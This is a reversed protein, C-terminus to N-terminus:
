LDTGQEDKAGLSKIYTLDDEDLRFWEGRLRKDKFRVHLQSELDPFDLVENSSTPMEGNKM